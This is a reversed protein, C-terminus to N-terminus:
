QGSEEIIPTEEYEAQGIIEIMYYPEYHIIKPPLFIKYATIYLMTLCILMCIIEIKFENILLKM